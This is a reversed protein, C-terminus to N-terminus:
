KVIPDKLSFPNGLVQSSFLRFEVPLNKLFPYKQRFGDVYREFEDRSEIYYRWLFPEAGCDLGFHGIYVIEGPGVTFSGGVAQGDRILNDKTAKFHGVDTASKAVKVDFATLAYEGPHVVFAYPLFKNDVSVASPTELAFTASDHSDASLRSFEMAELQANEFGGCQWTRGWNIQVIVIGHDAKYTEEGLNVPEAAIAHELPLVVLIMALIYRLFRKM